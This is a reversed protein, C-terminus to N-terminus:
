SENRLQVSPRLTAAHELHLAENLPGTGEFGETAQVPDFEGEQGFLKFRRPNTRVARGEKPLSAHAPDTSSTAERQYVGLAAHDEETMPPRQALLEAVVCAAALATPPLPDLQPRCHREAAGSLLRSSPSGSLIRPWFSQLRWSVAPDRGEKVTSLRECRPRHGGPSSRGVAGVLRRRATSQLWEPQSRALRSTTWPLTPDSTMTTRDGGSSRRRPM